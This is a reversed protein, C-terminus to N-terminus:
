CAATVKIHHVLEHLLQILKCITSRSGTTQIHHEDGFTRDGISTVMARTGPCHSNSEYCFRKTTTSIDVYQQIFKKKKLAFFSVGGPLSTCLHTSIVSYVASTERTSFVTPISTIIADYRYKFLQFEFRWRNDFIWFYNVIAISPVSVCM